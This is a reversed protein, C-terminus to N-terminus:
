EEIFSVPDYGVLPRDKLIRKPNEELLMYAYEGGYRNYLFDRVEAMDPTRSDQRHADSAVCSVVGHRLLRNACDYEKRGFSGLLSGKNVQIGYGKKYWEYVIQPDSQVFYYRSPHAIVPIYGKKQIESLEENCYRPDEDFSFEVLLYHSGNLSWLKKEELLKVSRETVLIEMGKRLHVPIGYDQLAEKLAQFRNELKEGATNNYMGPMCHPTAIITDVGSEYAIRAMKLSMEINKSGDDVGYLIHSHIDIM